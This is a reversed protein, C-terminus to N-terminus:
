KRIVHNDNEEGNKKQDSPRTVFLASHSQPLSHSQRDTSTSRARTKPALQHPKLIFLVFGCFLLCVSLHIWESPYFSLGRLLYIQSITLLYVIWFTKMLEMHNLWFSLYVCDSAHRAELVAANAIRFNHFLQWNTVKLSMRLLRNHYILSLLLYIRPAKTLNNTCNSESSKRLTRSRKVDLSLICELNPRWM